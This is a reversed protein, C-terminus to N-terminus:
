AVSRFGGAKATPLVDLIKASFQGPNGPKGERPHNAENFNNM